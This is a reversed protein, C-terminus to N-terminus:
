CIRGYHREQDKGSCLLFCVLSVTVDCKQSGNFYRSCYLTHIKIQIDSSLIFYICYFIHINPGCILM